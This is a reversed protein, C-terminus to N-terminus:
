AKSNTLTTQIDKKLQTLDVNSFEKAYNFQKGYPNSEASHQRLPSLSLKEPWWFENTKIQNGALAKSPMVMTCLAVSIVAAIPLTKNFM